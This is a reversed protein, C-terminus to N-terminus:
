EAASRPEARRYALTAYQRVMRETTFFSGNLSIAGRRVMSFGDSQEYYLPGIVTEFKAYLDDAEAADDSRESRDGISWGTVGEIHGELWWGDLVSLSPVGNLAAKMGSTGSAEYPKAPTNVWVDVGACLVAAVELSYDAVYVISVLGGLDKAAQHIRAIVAKGARDQPHAKGAYVIQLPGVTEAAQQLRPLNSLLLALRKYRTARRAVGLTLARPDLRVGTREAVLQVMSRKAEAHAEELARLPIAWAYRLSQNDRRWEPLHRDFLAAMSPAVWTAAHVGNTIAGIHARPFMRRSVEAHRLSVANVFRSYTMGLETMNLESEALAGLIKMRDDGLVHRVLDVDFRDHGAAVPTHTTFVCRQRVAGEEEEGLEGDGAKALELLALVLLSSHGENMHYTSVGGLGLKTLMAVGGIGLVAEQRLRQHLDGGYLRDAIARDRPDNEEVDTDLLIVQAQAGTVGKVLFRWARVTVPRDCVTITICQDLRELHDSPSWTVPQELQNGGSDLQQRFYGQQYLLTMGVVPVGLDAAARLHDGALVGLGGAYSPIAPDLAMEMSFYAVAPVSDTPRRHPPREASLM